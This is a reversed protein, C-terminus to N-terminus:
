ERIWLGDIGIAWVYGGAKLWRGVGATSGAFIIHNADAADRAICGLVQRGEEDIIRVFDIRIQDPLKRSM